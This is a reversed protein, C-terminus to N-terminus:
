AWSQVKIGKFGKFAARDNTVLVLDNIYAIAAVQGAAFSPQKAATALRSREMAHWEAAAGDYELIPFSASLVDVLYSEVADRRKSVPLRACGNRLEHWTVSSIAIEGEHASMRQLIARRPNPQLPEYLTSADLLYKLGV